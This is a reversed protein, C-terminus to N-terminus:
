DGARIRIDAQLGDGYAPRGACDSCVPAEGCRSRDTQDRGAKLFGPYPFLASVGGRRSPRPHWFPTASRLLWTNNCAASILVQVRSSAPSYKVANERIIELLLRLLAEDTKLWAAECGRRLRQPM